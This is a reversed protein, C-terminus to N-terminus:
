SQSVHGLTDDAKQRLQRLFEPNARRIGHLLRLYDSFSAGLEGQHPYVLPFRHLNDAMRAVEGRLKEHIRLTETEIKDNDWFTPGRVRRLVLEILFRYARPAFVERTLFPYEYLIETVTLEESRAWDSLKELIEPGWLLLHFLPNARTSSYFFSNLGATLDLWFHQTQARLQSFYRAQLCLERACKQGYGTLDRLDHGGHRTPHLLCGILSGSPDLYGLAWCSFGTIPKRSPVNQLLTERHQRFERKLSGVWDLPDYGAPRIPPCCAFCHRTADPACLSLSRFDVESQLPENVQPRPKTLSSHHGM